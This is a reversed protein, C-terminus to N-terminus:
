QRCVTSTEGCKVLRRRGSAAALPPALFLDVPDGLNLGAGELDAGLQIRDAVDLDAVTEVIPQCGLVHDVSPTQVAEAHLGDRGDNRAAHQHVHGLGLADLPELGSIRDRDVVDLRRETTLLHRDFGAVHDEDM